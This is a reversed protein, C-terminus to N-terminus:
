FTCNSDALFNYLIRNLAEIDFPKALHANMGARKAEEIDEAFADATMAIIPIKAADERQLARIRRTAEYGNMNVMQIDMLILDYYGKASREFQLLGDAGDEATEVRADMASLLEVAIESNLPNDEVLLIRKGKLLHMKNDAHLLNTGCIYNQIGNSLTSKFLPKQLFGDIGAQVAEQEIDSWDYASVILIPIGTKLEERIRCATQVGDMGPMKWDLLVMDYDCGRLHAQVVEQVADEGNDAWFAEADLEELMQVLYECAIRDNDVVLINMGRCSIQESQSPAIELPLSICFEAGEGARSEVQISGGFLETLKKTIAMGLGSGEAKDVRSDRERTFADFIHPLFAPKIGIGTDSCTFRLLAYGQRDCALEEIEFAIDGGCPTFKSANSLVNIFIQRLRLPDSVFNEHRVRCLRISFHQKREKIAPQLITVINELVDSLSMNELHLAINGSEIKSMDLVDNILGLLHQSSLSIKKLCDQVKAKDEPYMAAINTMGIIANMPTRIDHSMQSLFDSKARNAKEAMELAAALQEAQKEMQQQMEKLKTIDTYITYIVPIGHFTEDTFRGTVRIWVESGGKVHMSCEFEYGSNESQYADTIIKAMQVVAEPDDKFYEDVHNHFQATYEEKTYGILKYFYDNAWLVTFHEDFLHKSVSVNMLTMFANYEYDMVKNAYDRIM